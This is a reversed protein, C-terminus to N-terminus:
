LTHLNKCHIVKDKTAFLFWIGEEAVDGEVCVECAVEEGGSFSSFPPSLLTITDAFRGHSSKEHLV